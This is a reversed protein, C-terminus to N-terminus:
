VGGTTGPAMSAPVGSPEPLLGPDDSTGPMMSPEPLDSPMPAETAQPSPSPAATVNETPSPSPMNVNPACGIMVVPILLLIWLKKM